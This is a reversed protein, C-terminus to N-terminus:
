KTASLPFTVDPSFGFAEAVRDGGTCPARLVLVLTQLIM